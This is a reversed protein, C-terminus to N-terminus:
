GQKNGNHNQLMYAVRENCQRYTKWREHDVHQLPKTESLRSVLPEMSTSSSFDIKFITFITSKQKYMNVNHSKQKYM